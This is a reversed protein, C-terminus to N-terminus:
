SMFAFITNFNICSQTTKYFIELYEIYIEIVFLFLYSKLSLLWSFMSSVGGGGGGM